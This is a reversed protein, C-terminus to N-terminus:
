RCAMFRNYTALSGVVVSAATPSQVDTDTELKGGHCGTDLPAQQLLCQFVIPRRGNNM